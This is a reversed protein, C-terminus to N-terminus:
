VSGSAALTKLGMESMPLCLPRAFEGFHCPLSQHPQPRSGALRAGLRAGVWWAAVCPWASVWSHGGGHPCGWLWTLAPCLGRRIRVASM